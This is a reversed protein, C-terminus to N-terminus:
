HYPAWRSRCTSVWEKGVRREESRDQTTEGGKSWEHIHDVQPRRPLEDCTPHWCTRNAVELGRRLGGRFFRRQAGVDLVRPRGDFVIREVDAETLHRAATGPTLQARNWMELVPGRLTEYEVLVTFVPAPRVCMGPSTHALAAM